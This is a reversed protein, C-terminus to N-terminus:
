MYLGLQWECDNTLQLPFIHWLSAQKTHTQLVVISVSVLCCIKTYMCCQILLWYSCALCCPSGLPLRMHQRTVTDCGRDIVSPPGLASNMLPLSQPTCATLALMVTAPLTPLARRLSHTLQYKTTYCQCWTPPSLNQFCQRSSVVSTKSLEDGSHWDVIGDRRRDNSPKVTSPKVFCAHWPSAHLPKYIFFM